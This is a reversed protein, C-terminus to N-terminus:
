RLTFSSKLRLNDSANGVLAEFKGPEARWSSTLEDYYSLAERGITITVDRSEGPQLSVKQFGKLEKYPRDITSKVDRVYLQVTESGARNGTNRVTVTFTITGDGSLEQASARLNTLSFTTYSLGHGFAFIPHTKHKDAWRYGVYIGERYNEDIINGPTKAGGEKRWTGPYTDLAHAGVENLASVWTYPLKGSPNVDGVLVDALAHGAESGIFWGQVIAPVSAHWPMAVPNGSINVYVMRKCAKALAEVLRDQGYPLEYSKRDHGEADQHDSKNLGGFMIVYDAQQAKSVAEAILEDASRKEELNQGTTVGNYNGTVDGVYGRAYEVEIGERQLRERLGDLPLVEHQVKLSSSGGGVTMMKIANEGVVLVRKTKTVDIPLVGGENQLLVIGERAVQRATAYHADSCLFGQGRHNNMTTRYYLRLVRRVKDDLEQTTYRGEKIARLYPVALYYNDYANSTGESLGNTWSGFEMDLGNRVSQDTDHAGGWDSVVVGDFQWDGKLIKGLTWQNHCNHEDRYLNYAGMVAWAHGQQVAAKFAPLYIEHLARDSVQVNVQHRYEEDNNLCYHKVCASVGRSQLGQIYPVVMTSALFPDEGMYEFNRGGLPTRLINVGPGLIMDKGRYRAEEGLAEGYARAMDPNWSAALCTLAPFAVCSDNSQGAQEWEDWLVDPRVGHPGDDTWFDPFGLRPVGASSFKSQAHIVRIKEQLTMRSLADDIRQEVPKSEDLYIPVTTQAEAMGLAAWSLLGCMILHKM